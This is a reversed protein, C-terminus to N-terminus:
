IETIPIDTNATIPIPTMYTVNAPNTWTINNYDYNMLPLMDVNWSDIDSYLKRLKKITELMGEISCSDVIIFRKEEERITYNM